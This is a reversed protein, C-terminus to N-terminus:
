RVTNVLRYVLWHDDDPATAPDIPEPEYDPSVTLADLLVQQGADATSKSRVVIVQYEREV